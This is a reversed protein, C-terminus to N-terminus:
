KLRYQDDGSASKGIYEIDPNGGDKAIRDRFELGIVTRLEGDLKDWGPVIEPLTWEAKGATLEKINKSIEDAKAIAEAKFDAM